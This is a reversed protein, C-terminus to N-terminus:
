ELAVKKAKSRLIEINNAPLSYTLLSTKDNFLQFYNKFSISNKEKSIDM